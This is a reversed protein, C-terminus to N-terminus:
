SLKKSFLRCCLRLPAIYCSGVGVIRFAIAVEDRRFIMESVISSAENRGAMATGDRSSCAPARRAQLAVSCVWCAMGDQPFLVHGHLQRPMLHLVCALCGTMLLIEIRSLPVRSARFKVAKVLISSECLLSVPLGPPDRPIDHEEFLEFNQKQVVILYPAGKWM